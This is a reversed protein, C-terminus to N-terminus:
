LKNNLFAEILEPGTNFIKGSELIQEDYKKLSGTEKKAKSSYVLYPVPGRDYKMLAASSIHNVVILLKTEEQTELAQAIPKVVETDFDEIALIKDDINGKLSVEEGASIHLFVVDKKELEALATKVKGSYNTNYFGTAGEVDLVEMEALRAIGKVMSSATIVAASKGFREQFTPLSPAEGNGWLWISNVPDKQEQTRKKNFPLNHLVIQAQNMVFILDRVNKGEPMFKRIGEGILENPPSLREQIPSTKIVVLNHFGKGHHFTADTVQENLANILVESDEASLNGGTYDKMVMDDHTAQLAILDCCLVIEDAEPKVGLGIADLAAHGANYKEPDYGLLGLCSVENGPQLSDPLTQVPGYQGKQVLADLNPTEALQLPTKNDKEAFPKDTLGAVMVVLYKM